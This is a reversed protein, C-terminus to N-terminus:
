FQLSLGLAPRWAADTPVRRSSTHLPSPPEWTESKIAWGVLAGAGAGMGGFVGAVLAYGRADTNIAPTAATAIIGFAAGAAFGILTGLAAHSHRGRSVQLAALRETPVALMTYSDREVLRLSDGSQGVVTGILWRDPRDCLALRVRAGTFATTLEQGQANGPLATRAGAALVAAVLFLWPNYRGSRV